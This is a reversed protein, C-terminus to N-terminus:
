HLISYVIYHELGLMWSETIVIDILWHLIRASRSELAM